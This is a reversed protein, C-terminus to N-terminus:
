ATKGRRKKASGVPKEKRAAAPLADAVMQVPADVGKLLWDPSVRLFRALNLLPQGQPTQGGIWNSVTHVHVGCADAIAQNDM